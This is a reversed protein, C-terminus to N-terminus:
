FQKLFTELFNIMNADPIWSIGDKNQIYKLKTFKYFNSRKWLWNWKFAEMLAEYLNEFIAGM